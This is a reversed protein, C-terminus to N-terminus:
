VKYPMNKPYKIQALVDNKVGGQYTPGNIRQGARTYVVPMNGTFYMGTLRPSGMVPLMRNELNAVPYVMHVSYPDGQAPTRDIIFQDQSIKGYM